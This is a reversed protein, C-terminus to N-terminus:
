VGMEELAKALQDPCSTGRTGCEIGKLMSKVDAARRGKVLTCVGKLNGNCGGLFNVSSIVGNDDVSIDIRRSCTGKTIYSLHKMIVFVFRGNLAM